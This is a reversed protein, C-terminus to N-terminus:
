TFTYKQLPAHTYAYLCDPLCSSLSWNQSSHVDRDSQVYIQLEYTLIGRLLNNIKHEKRSIDEIEKHIPHGDFTLLFRCRDRRVTLSFCYEKSSTETCRFNWLNSLLKRTIVTWKKGIEECEGNQLSKSKSVRILNLLLSCRVAVSFKVCYITVSIKKQLIVKHRCCLIQRQNAM